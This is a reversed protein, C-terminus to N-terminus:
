PHSLSVHSRDSLEKIVLYFRILRSVLFVKRAISIFKCQTRGAREGERMELRLINCKSDGYELKGAKLM